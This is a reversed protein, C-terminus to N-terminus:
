KTEGGIFFESEKGNLTVGDMWTLGISHNNGLCTILESGVKGAVVYGEHSWHVKKGAAIAARIETLSM